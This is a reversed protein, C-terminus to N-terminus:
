PPANNANAVLICLGVSLTADADETIRGFAVPLLPHHRCGSLGQSGVYLCGHIKDDRSEECARVQKANKIFQNVRSSVVSGVISHMHNVIYYHNDQSCGIYPIGKSEFIGHGYVPGRDEHTITQMEIVYDVVIAEETKVIPQM